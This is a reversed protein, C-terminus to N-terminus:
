TFLKAGAVRRGPPGAEGTPLVQEYSNVISINYSNAIGYLIVIGPLTPKTKRGM